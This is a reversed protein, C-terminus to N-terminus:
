SRILSVSLSLSLSSLLSPSLSLSLSLSLPLSFAHHEDKRVRPTNKNKIQKNINIQKNQLPSLPFCFSLFLPLSPFFSFLRDVGNEREEKEKKKKREKKEIKTALACVIASRQVTSCTPSHIHEWPKECNRTPTFFSTIRSSSLASLSIPLLSFHLPPLLSFFLIKESFFFM